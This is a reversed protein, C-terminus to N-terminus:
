LQARLGAIRDNLGALQKQEGALTNREDDIEGRARAIQATLDKVHVDAQVMADLVAMVEEMNGIAWLGAIVAGIGGITKADDTFANDESLAVGTGAAGVAIAAVAMKHDMLYARVRGEYSELEGQLRQAHNQLEGIRATRATVIKAVPDRESEVANIESLVKQKRIAEPDTCAGLGVLAVFVLGILRRM